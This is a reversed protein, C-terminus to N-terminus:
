VGECGGGCVQQGDPLYSTNTPQDIPPFAAALFARATMITRDLASSRVLTNHNNFTGAATGM